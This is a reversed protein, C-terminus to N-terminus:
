FIDEKKKQGDSLGTLRDILKSAERKNLQEPIQAHANIDQIYGTLM